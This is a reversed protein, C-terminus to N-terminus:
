VTVEMAFPNVVQEPPVEEWVTQPLRDTKFGILWLAGDMMRPSDMKGLRRFVQIPLFFQFHKLMEQYINKREGMIKLFLFGNDKLVRSFEGDMFRLHNVTEDVTWSGYKCYLYSKEYNTGLDLHPPDCNIADVCGDKLPLHRIDAVITPKVIVKNSSDYSFDGRRKDITILEENEVLKTHYGNYIKMAGCCADLILM